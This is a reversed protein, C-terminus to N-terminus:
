DLRVSVSVSVSVSAVGVSVSVSVGTLPFVIKANEQEKQMVRLVATETLSPHM